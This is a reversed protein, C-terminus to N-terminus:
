ESVHIVYYRGANGTLYCSTCKVKSRVVPGVAQPANDNKDHLYAVRLGTFISHAKILHKLLKSIRLNFIRLMTFLSLSAKYKNKPLACQPTQSPGM